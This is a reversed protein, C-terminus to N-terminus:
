EQNQQMQLVLLNDINKQMDKMDEKFENFANMPNVTPTPDDDTLQKKLISIAPKNM